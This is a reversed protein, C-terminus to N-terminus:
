VLRRRLASELPSKDRWLAARKRLENKKVFSWLADLEIRKVKLDKLLWDNIRDSQEAARTLWRSVTDLKVGLVDAVGRLPMGRVLLKMALLVKSRQSRLNHFFTGQHQTWTEGCDRCLFQRVRGKTKTRYCGNSVVNTEKTKGYFRCRRNPCFQGATLRAHKIRAM